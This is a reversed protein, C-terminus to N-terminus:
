EGVRVYSIKEIVKKLINSKYLYYIYSFLYIIGELIAELISINFLAHIIYNIAAQLVLITFPICLVRYNKINNFFSSDDKLYYYAYLFVYAILTTVAAIKYDFIPIFLLNLVINILLALLLGFVSIKAKGTFNLRNKIFLLMGYIYSTIMIYPMMSYGERFSEGLLIFALEKKFISFYVTVPTLILLYMNLYKNINRDYVEINEELDKFLYPNFINFFITVLAAISIQAINYVQNYIGVEKVSALFDIIYRDSSTLLVLSLDGLAVVLGYSLFKNIVELDFYKISPKIKRWFIIVLAILLFLSVIINSELVAEIRYNFKFTLLFLIIFSMAQLLVNLSNYLFARDELRVIVMFMSALVSILMQFLSLIIIKENSSSILSIWMFCALLTLVSSVIYLIFINSYFVELKNENKYRNYFRWICNSLYSFVIISIYSFTITILGLVGYEEPTFYRTFIPTKIFSIIIPFATGLIYYLSSKYISKKM